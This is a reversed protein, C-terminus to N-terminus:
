PVLSALQRAIGVWLRRGKCSALNTRGVEREPEEASVIVVPGQCIAHGLWDPAGRVVNAALRLAIDTKGSGGDGHLTTVEGRPIQGAALWEVPPPPDSPWDVPTVLRAPEAAQEELESSLHKRNDDLVPRNAIITARTEDGGIGACYGIDFLSADIALRVEPEDPYEQSLMLLEICARKFNRRPDGQEAALVRRWSAIADDVALPLQSADIQEADLDIVGRSATTNDM